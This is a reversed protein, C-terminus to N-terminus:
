RAPPSIYIYIIGPLIGQCEGDFDGFRSWDVMAPAKQAGGPGKAM